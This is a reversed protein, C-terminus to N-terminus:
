RLQHDRISSISPITPLEAINDCYYDIICLVHIKNNNRYLHKTVDGISLSTVSRDHVMQYQINM